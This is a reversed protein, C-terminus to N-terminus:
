ELLIGPKQPTSQKAKKDESKDANEIHIKLGTEKELFAKSEELMEIQTSKTLVPKVENLKKYMQQIFGVTASGFGKNESDAM